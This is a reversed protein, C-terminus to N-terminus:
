YAGERKLVVGVTKVLLTLDLWVSWNRVYWSDMKVRDEYDVNNRGNVQWYGTLGPRVMYYDNIYEGYKEVEQSVIPRPGVISMEGRLINFIQPLEDLSTKRLFKGVRTIRPDDKLKFDRMWEAKAEPNAALYDELRKQSDTVMTRFKLCNFSKGNVGVRRHAFIVPGPSDIYIILVLIIFIPLLCIAGFLCLVMDLSYKFLRNPLLALNNRTRLLITQQDFLTDIEMNSLPVGLLDPMISVQNVLPRTRYLLNLMKERSLEPTAIIVDKVGSAMIAEEITSFTGILPLQHKMTLDGDDEIVGVIKYGMNPEDAFAKAMFEVAKGHGVIVVPRQWLGVSVMVWKTLYRSVALYLFAICGSSAVFIRSVDKATYSFYLIGIAIITAFFCVKFLKEVSQWFPLRKYYLREYSILTLYIFPLVFYLYKHSFTFYPLNTFIEPLLNRRIGFATLLAAVVAIYDMILLLLPAIWQGLRSIGSLSAVQPFPLLNEATAATEKRGFINLILQRPSM